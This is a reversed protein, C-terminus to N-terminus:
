FKMGTIYEHMVDKEVKGNKDLIFAVDDKVRGNKTIFSTKVMAAYGGFEQVGPKVFADRLSDLQKNIYVLLDRDEALKSSLKERSEAPPAKDDYNALKDENQKTLKTYELRYYDLFARDLEIAEAVTLSDLYYVDINEMVAEPYQM